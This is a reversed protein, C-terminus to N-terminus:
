RAAQRRLTAGVGGVWGLLLVLAPAAVGALPTVGALGVAAVALSTAAVAGVPGTWRAAGGARALSLGTACLVALAALKVADVREIGLLVTRTTGAAVHDATLVMAAGAAAQAWSLVAVAAASRRLLSRRPTAAPHDAVRRAFLLLCAGAIAHVLAIQALAAPRHTAYHTAVVPAGDASTVGRPILALGLLWAAVYAAAPRAASRLSRPSAATADHTPLMKSDIM